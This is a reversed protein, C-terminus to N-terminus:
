RSDARLHGFGDDLGFFGVELEHAAFGLQV